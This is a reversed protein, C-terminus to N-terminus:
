KRHHHCKGSAHKTKLKCQANTSKSTGSCQASAVTVTKTTKGGHHHCHVGTKIVVKCNTGKSTTAICTGDVDQAFAFSGMALGIILFKNKM